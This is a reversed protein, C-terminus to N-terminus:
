EVRGERWDDVLLAYTTGDIWGLDRHLSEKRFLAERQMGLKDMIRLSPANDAFANAVLRRIGLDEFCLRVLEAVAETMYGHGQHDPSLCWGIEAQTDKGDERVEYQAWGDQVHLYLDGIVQGDLELVLTRGMAEPTMLLLWDDYSSPRGPMWEAVDERSRYAFVSPLDPTEAPRFSLRETRAPWTLREFTVPGAKPEGAARTLATEGAV